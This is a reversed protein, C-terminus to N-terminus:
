ALIPTTENVVEDFLRFHNTLRPNSGFIHDLCINISKLVKKM